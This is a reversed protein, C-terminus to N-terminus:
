SSTPAHHRCRPRDTPDADGTRCPAGPHGRAFPERRHRGSCRGSGGGSPHRQRIRDGGPATGPGDNHETPHLSRHDSRHHCRRGHCLWPLASGAGVRTCGAGATPGDAGQARSGVVPRKRRSPWNRWGAAARASSFPLSQSCNRTTPSGPRFRDAATPAVIDSEAATRDLSRLRCCSAILRASDTLVPVTALVLYFDGLLSLRSQWIRVNAGPGVLEFPYLMHPVDTPAPRPVKRYSEWVGYLRDAGEGSLLRGTGFLLNLLGLSAPVMTGTGVTWDVSASVDTPLRLAADAERLWARLRAVLDPSTDLPGHGVCYGRALDDFDGM